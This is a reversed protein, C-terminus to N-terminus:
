ENLFGGKNISILAIIYFAILLISTFLPLYGLILFIATLLVNLIIAIFSSLRFNFVLISVAIVCIFYLLMLGGPNLFGTNILITDFSGNIGGLVDSVIPPAEVTGLSFNYLTVDQKPAFTQDFTEIQGTEPNNWRWGSHGNPLIFDATPILLSFPQRGLLNLGNYFTAYYIDNDFNYYFSNNVFPIEMSASTNSILLILIDFTVANTILPDDINFTYYGNVNGTRTYTAQTFNLTKSIAGTVTKFNIVSAAHSTYRASFRPDIFIILEKVSDSPIINNDSRMFNSALFFPNFLYAKAEPDNVIVVQVERDLLEKLIPKIANDNLNNELDTLIDIEFTFATRPVEIITSWGLPGKLNTNDGVTFQSSTYLNPFTINKVLGNNGTLRISGPFQVICGFQSVKSCNVVAINPHYPIFLQIFNAKVFQDNTLNNNTNNIGAKSSRFMTDALVQGPVNNPFQDLIQFAVERLNDSDRVVAESEIFPVIPIFSVFLLIALIKKLM